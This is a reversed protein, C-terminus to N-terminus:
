LDYQIEIMDFPGSEVKFFVQPNDEKVSELERRIADLVGEIETGNYCNM